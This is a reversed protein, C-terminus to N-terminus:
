SPMGGDETPSPSPGSPDSAADMAAHWSALDGWEDAEELPHRAYAAHYARDIEAARQSALYATLAAELVSADTGPGHAARAQAILHSDVTTSVRVRAM